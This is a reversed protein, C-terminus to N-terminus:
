IKMVYATLEFTLYTLLFTLVTGSILLGGVVYCEDWTEKKAAKKILEQRREVNFPQKGGVRQHVREATRRNEGLNQMSYLPTLIHLNVLIIVLFYFNNLRLM